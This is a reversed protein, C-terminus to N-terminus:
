VDSKPHIKRWIHSGNRNPESHDQREVLTLRGLVRRMCRDRKKQNFAPCTAPPVKSLETTARLHACTGFRPEPYSAIAACERCVNWNEACCVNITKRRRRPQSTQRLLRIEGSATLDRVATLERRARSTVPACGQITIPALKSATM